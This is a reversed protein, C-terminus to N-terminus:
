PLELTGVVPAHDSLPMTDYGGQTLSQLTRGTGPAWAGNTFLYDLKRNWFGRGDVTHTYHVTNDTTYAELTIAPQFDRYLDDLWVMQEFLQPQHTLDGSTVPAGACLACGLGIAWKRLVCAVGPIPYACQDLIPRTARKGLHQAHRTIPDNNM